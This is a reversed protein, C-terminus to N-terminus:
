GVLEWGDDLEAPAEGQLVLSATLGEDLATLECGYAQIGVVELRISMARTPGDSLYQRMATFVSGINIPGAFCRGIVETQRQRTSRGHVGFQM